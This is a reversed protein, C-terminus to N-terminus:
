NLLTNGLLLLGAAAFGGLISLGVRGDAAFRHDGDFVAMAMLLGLGFVLIGLAVLGRNESLIPSFSLAYQLLASVLALFFSQSSWLSIRERLATLGKSHFEVSPMTVTFTIAMMPAFTGWFQFQWGSSSPVLGAVVAGLIMVITASVALGISVADKSGLWVRVRSSVAIMGLVFISRWWPQLQLPVDLTEALWRVAPQLVPDLVASIISVIRDYGVMLWHVPTSWQLSDRIFVGELIDLLSLGGAGALLMPIAGFDMWRKWLLSSAM